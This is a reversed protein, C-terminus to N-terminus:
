RMSGVPKPDPPSMILGVSDIGNARLQDIVGLVVGYPVDKDGRIAVGGIGPLARKQKVRLILASPNTPEDGVYLKKDRTVTIIVHEKAKPPLGVSARALNVEVSSSLMPATVMFVILLVLMVDVLPTVNIESLTSATKGGVAMGM